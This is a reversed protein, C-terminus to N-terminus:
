KSVIIRTFLENRKQIINRADVLAKEAVSVNHAYIKVNKSPRARYVVKRKQTGKRRPTNKTM